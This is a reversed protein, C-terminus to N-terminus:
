KDKMLVRSYSMDIKNKLIESTLNEKKGGSIIFNDKGNSRVRRGKYSNNM